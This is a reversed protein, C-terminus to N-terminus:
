ILFLLTILLSSFSISICLATIQSYTTQTLLFKLHQHKEHYCQTQFHYAQPTSVALVATVVMLVSELIIDVRSNRGKKHEKRTILM